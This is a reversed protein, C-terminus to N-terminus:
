MPCVVAGEDGRRHPRVGLPPGDGAPMCANLPRCDLILRLDGNKKPVTFLQQLLSPKHRSILGSEEMAAAHQSMFRSVRPRTEPVRTLLAVFRREDSLIELPWLYEPDWSIVTGLDITRTPPLALSGQNRFPRPDPPRLLMKGLKVGIGVCESSPICIPEPLAGSDRPFQGRQPFAPVTM